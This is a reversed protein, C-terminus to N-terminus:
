RGPRCDGSYLKIRWYFYADQAALGRSSKLFITSFIGVGCIVHVGPTAARSACLSIHSARIPKGPAMWWLRHIFEYETQSSCIYDRERERERETEGGRERERVPTDTLGELTIVRKPCRLHGSAAVLSRRHSGTGPGVCVRMVCVFGCVCVSVFVSPSFLACGLIGPLTPNRLSMKLTM